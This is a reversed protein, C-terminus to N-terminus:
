ARSVSGPRLAPRGAETFSMFGFTFTAGKPMHWDIALGCTAAAVVAACPTSVGCGHRGTIGAGHVGPEGVETACCCGASVASECHEQWHPPTIVILAGPSM